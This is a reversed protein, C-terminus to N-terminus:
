EDGEQKPLQTPIIGSGNSFEEEQEPTLVIDEVKVEITTM